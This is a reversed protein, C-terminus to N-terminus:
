SSRDIPKASVQEMRSTNVGVLLECTDPNHYRRCLVGTHNRFHQRDVRMDMKSLRMMMESKSARNKMFAVMRCANDHIFVKVDELMRPQKMLNLLPILVQTLSESGFLEDIGLIQGCPFVLINIGAVKTKKYNKEKSTNCSTELDVAEEDVTKFTEMQIKAM